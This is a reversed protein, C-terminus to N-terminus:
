KATLKPDSHRLLRQAQVLSVGARALRTGFYVRLSHLDAKGEATEYPVEAAALDERLVKTSPVTPFVPALPTGRSDLAKLAAVTGPPLPQYAEKRNKAISARVRLTAGDLDVDAWRLRGLESRRLGTTAAVLYCTARPEAAARVLAQL